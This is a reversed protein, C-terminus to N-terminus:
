LAVGMAGFVGFVFRRLVGVDGDLRLLFPGLRFLAGADLTVGVDFASYRTSADGVRTEHLGLAAAPGAVVLLTIVDNLAPCLGTRLDLRFRQESVRVDHSGDSSLGSAGFRVDVCSSSRAIRLTGSLGFLGLPDFGRGLSDPMVELGASLAVSFREARVPVRPPRPRALASTGALVIALAAAAPLRM